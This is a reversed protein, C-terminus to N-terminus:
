GDRSEGFTKPVTRAAILTGEDDGVRLTSVGALGLDRPDGEVFLTSGSGALVPERGSTQAFADWWRVLEPEVMMAAETLDNRDHHGKGRSRLEDLAQYASRTDVGFPPILLVVSREEFDLPAVVEGLGRVQARGGVMCFPVDGGLRAADRLAVGGAWRLIAGADASGGGLGGGIPIRKHLLVEARRDVLSLARAVLNDPGDGLWSLRAHEEGTVVLGDGDSDIILLDALDLTVMEADLDHFGDARREGVKLSWTLKAPAHLTSTM